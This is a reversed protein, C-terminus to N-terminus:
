NANTLEGGRGNPKEVDVVPQVNQSLALLTTEVPVKLEDAASQAAAVISACTAKMACAMRSHSDEHEIKQFRAKRVRVGCGELDRKVLDLLEEEMTPSEEAITRFENSSLIRLVCAEVVALLHVTPDESSALHEALDAIDYVVIADARLAVGDWTLGTVSDTSAVNRVAHQKAITQCSTCIRWGVGLDPGPKGFTYRVAIEGPKVIAWKLPFLWVAPTILGEMILGLCKSLLELM